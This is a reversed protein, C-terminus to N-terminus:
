VGNNSRLKNTLVESAVLGGKAFMTLGKDIAEKMEDTIKMTPLEYQRGAYNVKEYEIKSGYKKAFNSDLLRVLTKDYFPELRPNNTRPKQIKYNSLSVKDYGKDVANIMAKKLGLLAWKKEKRFPLDSERPGTLNEIIFDLRDEEDYLTRGDEIRGNDALLRQQQPTLDDIEFDAKEYADVVDPHEKELKKIKAEIDSYDKKVQKLEKAIEDDSRSTYGKREQHFDSQIEDIMMMKEGKEASHADAVRVHVIVNNKHWHDNVYDLTNAKKFREPLAVLIERYGENGELEEERWKSYFENKGLPAM